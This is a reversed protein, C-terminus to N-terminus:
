PTTWWKQDPIVRQVNTACHVDGSLNHYAADYVFMAGTLNGTVNRFASDAYARLIPGDGPVIVDSGEPALIGGGDLLSNVYNATAAELGDNKQRFLVPLGVLTAAPNVSYTFTDGTQATGSWWNSLIFLNGDEFVEDKDRSGNRPQSWNPQGQTRWKIQYQTPSTFTIQVERASDIWAVFAGGKSLSVTSGNNIPGATVASVADTFNGSSRITDIDNPLNHPDMAANPGTLNFSRYEAGALEFFKDISLTGSFLANPANKQALRLLAWALEPDAVMVHQGDQSPAFIEDVHGVSLWSTDVYCNLPPNVGQAVLFSRVTPSVSSGVLQYAPGTSRHLAEIDGGMPSSGPDTNTLRYYAGVYPSLLKASVADYLNTGIAPLTLVVSMQGYPSQTYGIEYGDQAFATEGSPIPGNGPKPKPLVLLQPDPFMNKLADIVGNPQVDVIQVANKTASIESTNDNLVFPAVKVRVTDTTVVTNGQLITLKIDVLSGLEIGALGFEIQGTTGKFRNREDDAANNQTPAAFTKEAGKASGLLEEDLKKFTINGSGTDNTPLFVRARSTAQVGSFFANENANTPIALEIKVKLNDPLKDVGFKRMVLKGIDKIEWIKTSKPNGVVNDPVHDDNRDNCNPLIITGKAATWKDKGIQDDAGFQISNDRNTDALIGFQLVSIKANDTLDKNANMPTFAAKLDIDGLDASKAIGEIRLDITQDATVQGSAQGSTVKTFVGNEVKWVKVKDAFTLKWTGNVGAADLKLTAKRLDHEKTEDLEIRDNATADPQNDPVPNGNSDKNGEDFNDNVAVVGGQDKKDREALGEIRVDVSGVTIKVSDQPGPPQQNPNVRATLVVDGASDSLTIGEIWLSITKPFSASYQQGSYVQVFSPGSPDDPNRMWVKIKDSFTLSWTGAGQGTLTLAAPALYSDGEVTRDTGENPQNDPVPNGDDDVNQETYDKNLDVYAVTEGYQQSSGSVTLQVGPQSTPTPSDIIDLEALNPSGIVANVVPNTLLLGVTEVGGDVGDNVIPVTFTRRTQGPQFTLTGSSTQYDESATATGDYTSYSVSVTRTSSASLVVTITATPDTQGVYYTANSFYVKPLTASTITVTSPNPTGLTANAAYSLTVYLSEAGNNQGDDMIPVSFSAATQGPQFTLTGSSSQYDEAATASGDQTAYHVTVVQFTPSSLTATVTAAADTQTVTYIMNNFQVTPVPWGTLEVITTGPDIIEANVPNSLSASFDRIGSFVNDAAIQIQFTQTAQNAAFVLTGSTATYDRGALAGDPPPGDATSYDVLVTQAMHAADGIRDVQVTVVGETPSAQYTARDFFVYSYSPPSDFITLLASNPTGLTANTPDSLALVAWESGETVGDDVVPVSFTRFSQGPSFALTGSTAAYDDPSTATADISQYNVTSSPRLDGIRTVAIAATGQDESVSYYDSSFQITTPDDDNVTIITTDIPGITGGTPDGIELIITEEPEPDSDNTIPVDITATTEGPEITATGETDTYDGGPTATGGSTIYYVTVPSSSPANLGITLTMVGGDEWAEGTASEFQVQPPAANAITLTASDPSSITAGSANSLVLNVTEDGEQLSDAFVPVYFTHSTEDPLFTLTGSVSTYDSGATATGGASAYNVTATTTLEGDRQVTIAVEWGDEAVSYAGASFHVYAVRSGPGGPDVVVGNAVGDADGRGGDIFHLTVVNGNFQAGTTGDFDFPQLAGTADQKYYHHLDSGPPLVLRAAAAGGRALGGIDFAFLGLPLWVGGTGAPAAMARVNALVGGSAALSVASGDAARMSATAGANPVSLSPVLVPADGSAVPSRSVNSGADSSSAALNHTSASSGDVPERALHASPEGPQTEPSTNPTAPQDFSFAGALWPAPDLIGGSLSASIPPIGTESESSFGRALPAPPPVQDAPPNQAAAIAADNASSNTLYSPHFALLSESSTACDFPQADFISAVGLAGLLYYLTDSAANRDELRFLQPAFRFPKRNKQRLM